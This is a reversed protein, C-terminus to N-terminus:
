HQMMKMQYNRVEAQVQKSSGDEFTLTINLQEGAVLPEKLMMLMIHLGGPKLETTGDAAVPINEVQRMQMVGNNNIHTHLEAIGAGDSSASVLKHEVSGANKLTLFGASTSMVPPVERAWPDIINVEDAATGAFVPLSFLIFFLVLFRAISTPMTNLELFSRSIM